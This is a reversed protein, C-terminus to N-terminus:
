ETPRKREDRESMKTMKGKKMVRKKQKGRKRNIEIEIDCKRRERERERM